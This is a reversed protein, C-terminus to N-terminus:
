LKGNKVYVYSQAHVQELTATGLITRTKTTDTMRKATPAKAPGRRRLFDDSAFMFVVVLLVAVVILLPDLLEHHPHSPTEGIFPVTSVHITFDPDCICQHRHFTDM